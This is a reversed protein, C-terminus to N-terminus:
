FGYDTCSFIRTRIFMPIPCNIIEVADIDETSSCVNYKVYWKYRSVFQCQYKPIRESILDLIGEGYSTLHGSTPINSWLYNKSVDRMVQSEISHVKSESQLSLSQGANDITHFPKVSAAHAKAGFNTGEHPNNNSVNFHRQSKRYM